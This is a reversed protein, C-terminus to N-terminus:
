IERVFRLKGVANPELRRLRVLAELHQVASNASKMGFHKAIQHAPPLQDNELFFLCIYDLVEQQRKTIPRAALHQRTSSAYGSVRRAIAQTSM